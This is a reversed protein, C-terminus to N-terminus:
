RKYCIYFIETFSFGATFLTNLAAARSLESADENM